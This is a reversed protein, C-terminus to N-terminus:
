GLLRRSRHGRRFRPRRGRRRWGPVSDLIRGTVHMNYHAWGEPPTGDISDAILADHARGDPTELIRASPRFAERFMEPRHAGIGDTYLRVVRLIQERDPAPHESAAEHSM